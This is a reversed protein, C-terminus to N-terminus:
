AGSPKSRRLVFSAWAALGRLLEGALSPTTFLRRAYRAVIRPRLYFARFMSRQAQTLDEATLGEPVYAVEWRSSRKWEEPDDQRLGLEHAIETGPHPEFTQVVMDALPLSLVLDRTAEISDLTEGPTGIMFLGRAAIGAAHTMAVARKSQEVTIGKCIRDLQRQSGSEIGYSIQWSGARRMAGLVEESVMDVRGEASWAIDLGSTSLLACLDLLRGRNALLNDDHFHLERIGYRDHLERVARMVYEASHFRMTHGSVARDCFTCRGTCGRSSILSSAPLRSVGNLPPRYSTALDPLLDWAPLPLSDLDRVPDRRATRALSGDERRLILGAVDALAGGGLAAMLEPLTEEAEGIAAADIWPFASLTAEPLATVHAGGLLAFTGSDERKVLQAVRAASGVTMTVATIGAVRPAHGLVAAATEEATLGLCEADVIAVSHGARRVVSALSALGLPPLKSGGSSLAGYREEPTTPPNVLVIDTTM